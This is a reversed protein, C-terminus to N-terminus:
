CGGALWALDFSKLFFALSEELRLRLFYPALISKGGQEDYQHDGDEDACALRRANSGILM